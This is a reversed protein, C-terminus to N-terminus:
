IRRKFGNLIQGHFKKWSRELQNGFDEQQGQQHRSRSLACFTPLGELTGMLFLLSWLLHPSKWAKFQAKGSKEQVEIITRCFSTFNQLNEVQDALPLTFLMFVFKM